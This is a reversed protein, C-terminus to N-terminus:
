GAETIERLIAEAARAPDPAQTIPRGVVLYDAGAAVAAAPTAIRKQDGAASGAPRIGPTVLLFRRPLAARLPALEQPSCVVGDLGAREALLAWRLVTAAPPGPLELERLAQEDLSTLLTVGLVLPRTAGPPTGAAAGALAAAMMAPGGSAHVNFMFVGLRACAAAAREVTNPIDHLKLDLFVRAGRSALEEVIAPGLATFAELGVKFCGVRGELAQVLRRVEQAESTDLAVVLKGVAEQWSLAM